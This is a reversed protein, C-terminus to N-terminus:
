DAIPRDDLLPSNMARTCELGVQVNLAWLQELLPQSPGCFIRQHSNGGSTEIRDTLRYTHPHAAGHWIIAGITRSKPGGSPVETPLTKLYYLGHSVTHIYQFCDPSRPVHIFNESGKGGRCRHPPDCRQRESFFVGDM